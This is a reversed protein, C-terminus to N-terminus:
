DARLAVVACDANLLVSQVVSGFLAKGVPSQKRGSVVIYRADNSEAYSVIEEAPDGLLGIPEADVDTQEITEAAIDKAIDLIDDTPITQGTDNISTRELAVFKKRTLVHAVLVPEDFADGLKGAERIVELARESRDVAAVIAM